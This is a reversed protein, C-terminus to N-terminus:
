ENGVKTRLVNKLRTEFEGLWKAYIRVAILKETVQEDPTSEDVIDLLTQGLMAKEKAIEKFVVENAPLLESRKRTKEDTKAERREKVKQASASTLGSYLLSDDRM